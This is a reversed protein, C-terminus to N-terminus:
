VHVSDTSRATDAAQTYFKDGHSNYQRLPYM